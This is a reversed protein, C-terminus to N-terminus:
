PRNALEALMRYVGCDPAPEELNPQLIKGDRVWFYQINQGDMVVWLYSNREPLTVEVKLLPTQESSEDIEPIEFRVRSLQRALRDLRVAYREIIPWVPRLHAAADNGDVITIPLDSYHADGHALKYWHWRIDADGPREADGDPFEDPRPDSKGDATGIAFIGEQGVLRRVWVSDGAYDGGSPVRLSGPHTHAIGLLTLNPVSQSLIRHGLVQGDANMRIHVASAERYEGAPLTATVRAWDEGREGLLLWGLEENGRRSERHSQYERFLLDVVQFTLEVRTLRRLESSKPRSDGKADASAPAIEAPPAPASDASTLMPEPPLPRNRENSRLRHWGRM